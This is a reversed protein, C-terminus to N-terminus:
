VEPDEESRQANIFEEPTMGLIECTAYLKDIARFIAPAYRATQVGLRALNMIDDQGLMETTHKGYSRILTGEEDIGANIPARDLYKKIEGHAQRISFTAKSNLPEM